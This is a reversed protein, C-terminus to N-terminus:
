CKWKAPTSVKGHDTAGTRTAASRTFGVLARAKGPELEGHAIRTQIAPRTATFAAPALGRHALTRTRTRRRGCWSRPGSGSPDSPSRRSSRAPRRPNGRGRAPPRGRRQPRGKLYVPMTALQARQALLWHQLGTLIEYQTPDHRAHTPGHGTRCFGPQPGPGRRARHALSPLRHGCPASTSCIWPFRSCAGSCGHSTVRDTYFAM